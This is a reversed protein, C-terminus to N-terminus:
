KIKWYLFFCIHFLIPSICNPTYRPCTFVSRAPSFVVFHLNNEGYLEVQMSNERPLRNRVRDVRVLKSAISWQKGSAMNTIMRMNEIGWNKEWKSSKAALKSSHAGTQSGAPSFHGATKSNSSSSSRLCPRCVITGLHVKDCVFKLVQNFSFFIRALSCATLFM